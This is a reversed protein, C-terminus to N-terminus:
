PTIQISDVIGQIEAKRQPSTSPWDMSQIVVRIGNVDLIWLHWRQNNGQAYIGPDWPWFSLDGCGSVDAPLQLDIYKGSYGALTVDVPDTADLLPHAAIANAFDDVSPGVAIDPPPTSHCPDSYLNAGREIVLVGDGFHSDGTYPPPVQDRGFIVRGDSRYGDPVTITVQISDDAPNETCQPMLGGGVCVTFPDAGSFPRIVYRGAALAGDPLAAPSPTPRPTPKPGGFNGTGPLLNYGVVALVLVAAAAMAFKAYVNM